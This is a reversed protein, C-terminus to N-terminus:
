FTEKGLRAILVTERDLPLKVRKGPLWYPERLCARFTENEGPECSDFSLCDEGEMHWNGDRCKVCLFSFEWINTGQYYYDVNLWAREFNALNDPFDVDDTSMVERESTAMDAGSIVRIEWREDRIAEGTFPSLKDWLTSTSLFDGPNHLWNFSQVAIGRTAVEKEGRWVLEGTRVNVIQVNATKM